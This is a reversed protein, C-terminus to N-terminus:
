RYDEPTFELDLYVKGTAASSYTYVFTLGADKYGKMQISSRIERLVKGRFTEELEPTFISDRDLPEGITYCYKFRLTERDFCLSDMVIGPEVEKPCNKQTFEGAERQIREYRTEKSCGALVMSVALVSSIFYAKSTM